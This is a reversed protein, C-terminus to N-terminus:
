PDEPLSRLRYGQNEMRNKLRNMVMDIEDEVAEQPYKLEADKLLEGLLKEEFKENSENASATILQERVANRYEELTEFPGMKKIFDIDLEPIIRSSVKTVEIEFEVTRGKLSITGDETEEDEHKKSFKHSITKTDNASLGVLTRSFGQFPWEKSTDNSKSDIVM